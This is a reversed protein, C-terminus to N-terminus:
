EMMNPSSSPTMDMTPFIALQLEVECVHLLQRAAVVENVEEGVQRSKQLFQVDRKLITLIQRSEITELSERPEREPFEAHM